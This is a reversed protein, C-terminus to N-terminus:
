LQQGPVNLLDALESWQLDAAILTFFVTPLGLTDIMATLQKHWFQHTGRLSNGFHLVQNSLRDSGHQVMDQLEDVSLHGDDPNQRIYIRGTKLARHRM